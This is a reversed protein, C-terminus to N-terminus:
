LGILKEATKTLQINYEILDEVIKCGYFFRKTTTNYEISGFKLGKFVGNSIDICEVDFLCREKAQQYKSIENRTIMMYYDADPEKLVNGNDNCPVFMWLELPQKLFNAYEIVRIFNLENLATWEDSLVFDTMSILNKM